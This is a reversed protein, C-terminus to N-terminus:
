GPKDAVAIQKRQELNRAAPDNGGVVAAAVDGTCTGPM